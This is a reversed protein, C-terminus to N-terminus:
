LHPLGRFGFPIASSDVQGTEVKEAMEVRIYHSNNPYLGTTVLKQRGISSDFNFFTKYDGVVRAIYQQSEPNLDVGRFAELVIQQKDSDSFDRVILDFKGYPNNSTGPTINEISFKLKDNSYEGDDLSSIKFLNEELGGFKQSIVFVSEATTYRDEFGEYNPQDAAGTNRGDQGVTIFASEEYVSSGSVGGLLYEDKLVSDGGPIAIAPNIRWEAYLYHGAQELKLPDTNLINRIYNPATPDFSATLVNPFTADTGKHGNLILVFEQRGSELVLSGTLSGNFASDSGITAPSNTAGNSSSLTVFVGSAAMIVGRVVPVGESPKGADSFVTGVEKMYCGLFHTRGLKGGLNAYINTGFGGGPRQPQQQGVVFGAGAVSSQATSDREQGAGAGLVRLFTLSQANRLWELSALPGNAKYDVAEGFAVVYDQPTAVTVPVFAPGKQATGIVGAPIGSPQVSTPGTLNTVRTSVGASKFKLQPM